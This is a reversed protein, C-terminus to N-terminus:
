KKFLIMTSLFIKRGEEEANSATAFTATFYRNDGCNLCSLELGINAALLPAETKLAPEFRPQTGSQHQVSKRRIETLGMGIYLGERSQWANQAVSWGYDRSGKTQPDGGIRLASLTRMHQQDEWIFVAEMRTNPFIVTCPITKNAAIYFRDEQVNEKGFLTTLYEHSDLPLLDEAYVIDKPSPLQKRDVRFTCAASSDRGTISYWVTLNEKQGFNSDPVGAKLIGLDLLERHLAFGTKSDTTLCLSRDAGEKYLTLTSISTESQKRPAYLHFLSDQITEEGQPLYGKKKLIGDIRSDNAALVSALDRFSLDQANSKGAALSLCPLLILRAFTFSHLFQKQTSIGVM